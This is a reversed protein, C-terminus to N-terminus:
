PSPPLERRVVAFAQLVKHRAIECDTEVRIVALGPANTDVPTVLLEYHKGEELTKLEIKFSESTCSTSLIKIPKSHTMTIDIKQAEPKGGLTWKLTKENMVVLVPIHVRVTLMHAPKNEPDKDLWLVVTKDVVGSFNGMDFTARIMGGEGPAYNLKGDSVQVAICSCTKDVKAIAVPKDTKNVFKFDAVVSKADVPAHVEILETEFTLGEALLFGAMALWCCIVTRM